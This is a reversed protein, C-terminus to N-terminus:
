QERNLIILKSGNELALEMARLEKLTIIIEISSIQASGDYREYSGVNVVERNSSDKVYAVTCSFLPSQVKGDYKTDITGHTLDRLWDDYSVSYPTSNISSLQDGDSTYSYSIYKGPIEYFIVTDKRRISSPVAAVWDNPVKFVFEDNKLVLNPDDFFDGTLQSYKPIYHKAALSIIEDPSKIPNNIIKSEELKIYTLCSSDIIDGKNIDKAAVLVDQYLYAERGVTEWLVAVSACVITILIGIISLVTHKRVKFRAM